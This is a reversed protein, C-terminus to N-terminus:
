YNVIEENLTLASGDGWDDEIQLARRVESAKENRGIRKGTEKSKEVLIDVISKLSQNPEIDLIIMNPYAGYSYRNTLNGYKVLGISKYNEM